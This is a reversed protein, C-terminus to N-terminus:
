VYVGYDLQTLLTALTQRGDESELLEVPRRQELAMAPRGLWERAQAKSWFVQEAQQQIAKRSAIKV